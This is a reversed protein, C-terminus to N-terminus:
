EAMFLKFVVGALDGISYSTDAIHCVYYKSVVAPRDKNIVSIFEMM